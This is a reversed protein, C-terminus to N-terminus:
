NKICATGECFSNQPADTDSGVTPIIYRGAENQRSSTNVHQSLQLMYKNCLCTNETYKHTINKVIHLKVGPPVVVQADGLTGTCADRAGVYARKSRFGKLMANLDLNKEADRAGVYARKSRFGSKM